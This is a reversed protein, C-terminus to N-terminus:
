LLILVSWREPFTKKNESMAPIEMRVDLTLRNIEGQMLFISVQTYSLNDNCEFLTISRISFGTQSVKKLL